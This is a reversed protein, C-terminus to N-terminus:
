WGLYSYAWRPFAKVLGTLLGLLVFLYFTLYGYIGIWPVRIKGMMCVVGFAAFPLASLFAEWRSSRVNSTLTSEVKENSVMVAEKREM